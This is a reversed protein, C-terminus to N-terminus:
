YKSLSVGFLEIGFSISILPLLVGILKFFDSDFDAILTEGFDFVAEVYRKDEM